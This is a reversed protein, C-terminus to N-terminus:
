QVQESYNQVSILRIANWPCGTLMLGNQGGSVCAGCGVCRSEDVRMRKLPYNEADDVLQLANYKCYVLCVGCGTCFDSIRAIKKPKRRKRPMEGSMTPDQRM